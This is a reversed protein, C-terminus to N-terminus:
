GQMMMRVGRAPALTVGRRQPYEPQKDALTLQYNFVIKALVLKMEFLALAEGLCRRIGGGFPLFQYPTFQRDLFREPKFQKPQPYLDPRHHTLYICGYIRTGIELQYGMLEVPEKVERPVTLIAVPYIRLTEQCVATLYPLSVIEMPTAKDGLSALEQHLKDRVEPLKYIWYLGWSIATATTEQGALLLTILEDRLQEDTMGEGSEDKTELLLSLIDSRTPNGEQRREQIEALLLQSIRGKNRLFSGWPSWAGLDKQLSPFFLAGSKLPSRFGDTLTIIEQKLENFREGSHIGFVAQLIVELSIEQILDRATFVQGPHLQTMVKETLNSILQGYALIREGHFSPMLLKRERRHREGELVFLSYDGVIPQVLPNPPSIFQHHNAFIEQLAQPHSVLLVYPYKGIIPAKFIDGCEQSAAEMYALPNTIWQMKQFCHPATSAQPIQEQSRLM